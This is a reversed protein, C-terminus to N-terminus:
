SAPSASSRGRRFCTPSARTPAAILHSSRKCTDVINRRRNSEPVNGYTVDRSSSVVVVVGGVGGGEDTEGRREGGGEGRELDEEAVLVLEGRVGRHEAITPVQRHHRELHVPDLLYLRLSQLRLQLPKNQRPVLHPATSSTPYASSRLSSAGRVVKGGASDPVRRAETRFTVAARVGRM